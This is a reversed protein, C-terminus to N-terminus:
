TVDETDDRTIEGIYFGGGQDYADLLLLVEPPVPLKGRISSDYTEKSIGASLVGQAQLGLRRLSDQGHIALYLAMECQAEKMATSAETPFSFRPSGTLQKYATIILAKKDRDTTGDWIDSAGFRTAFYIEAEEATVWTNVGVELGEGWDDGSPAISEGVVRYFDERKSNITADTAKLTLTGFEVPIFDPVKWIEDYVFVMDGLQVVDGSTDFIVYTVDDTATSEPIPILLDVKENLTINNM